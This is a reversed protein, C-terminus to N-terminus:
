GFRKFKIGSPNFYILYCNKKGMMSRVLEHLWNLMTCEGM